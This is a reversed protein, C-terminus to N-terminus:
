VAGFVVGRRTAEDVADRVRDGFDEGGYVDGEFIITLGGGGKGLRDLPVVAEPRKNMALGAITPGTVVAGSDLIPIRSINPTGFTQGGLTGGGITKSPIPIGLFEGGGLTVSPLRIKPIRFEINNWADILKNIWGIIVNLASSVTTKMGDWATGWIANIGDWITEIGTKLGGITTDWALKLADWVATAAGSIGGWAASWVSKIGNWIDMNANRLPWMVVGWALKLADWVLTVQPKILRWATGWAEKVKDWVVPAAKKLWGITANWALKHAAWVPTVVAKILKWATGWREKVTDWVALAWKKILGITANWALVLGAWVLTVQPKILRWATGWVEKLTDWTALAAIKLWGITANWKLVLADWYGVVVIKIAWWILNWTEKTGTWITLAAAKVKDWNKILLIGAVMLALIPFMMLGIVVAGKQWPSLEQFKKVLSDWKWWLLGIVVIYYLVALAVLGVPGMAIGMAVGVAPAILIIAAFALLLGGIAVTLATVTITALVLARVLKPHRNTWETFKDVLSQVWPMLDAIVPLVTAFAVKFTNKMQNWARTLKFDATAAMKDFATDTAGAAKRMDELAETVVKGGDKVLAMLPIMSEQTVLNRFDDASMSERIETLIETFDRGEAMLASLSKGFRNTIVDALERGDETMEVFLARMGTTAIKTPIGQKTLAAMSATIQDFGIGLSVGIPVVNFLAKSLERFTTKGFRVATFMLDSVKTASHTSDTYANVVSTIGDVATTLDTVGGIAARGAIRLFDIVNNPSVGASIAQYLAPIVDEAAMGLENALAIVEQQTDGLSKDLLTSVEAFQKELVLAGKGVKFLAFGMAAGAAVMGVGVKKFNGAIRKSSERSSKEAKALGRNLRSNDTDLKYTASGLIAM